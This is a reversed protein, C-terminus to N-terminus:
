TDFIRVHDSVHPDMTNEKVTLVLFWSGLVAQVDVSCPKSIIRQQSPFYHSKQLTRSRTCHNSRAYKRRVAQKSNNWSYYRVRSCQWSKWVNKISHHSMRVLFIVKAAYHTSGAIPRRLRARRLRFITAM